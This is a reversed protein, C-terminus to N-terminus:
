SQQGCADRAEANWNGWVLSPLGALFQRREARCSLFCWEMVEWRARGGVERCRERETGLFVCPRVECERTWM